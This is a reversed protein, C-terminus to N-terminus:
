KEPGADKNNSPKSMHDIISEMKNLIKDLRGSLDGTELKINSNKSASQSNLTPQQQRVGTEPSGITNAISKLVGKNTDIAKVSNTFNAPNITSIVNLSGTFSGLKAIGTENLQAFSDALDRIAEAFSKVSKIVDDNINKSISVM